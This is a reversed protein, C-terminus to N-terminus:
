VRNSTLTVNLGTSFEVHQELLFWEIHAVSFSFNDVSKVGNQTLYVQIKSEFKVYLLLVNIQLVYNYLVSSYNLFM